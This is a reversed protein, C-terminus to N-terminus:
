RFLDWLVFTFNEDITSDFALRLEALFISHRVNVDWFGYQLAARLPIYVSPYATPKEVIM